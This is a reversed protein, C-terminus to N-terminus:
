FLVSTLNILLHTLPHRVGTKYDFSFHPPLSSSRKDKKLLCWAEMMLEKEPNPLPTKKDRHPWVLDM